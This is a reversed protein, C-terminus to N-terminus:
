WLVHSASGNIMAMSQVLPSWTTSALNPRMAFASEELARLAAEHIRAMDEDTLPKYRGVQCHGGQDPAYRRFHRQVHPPVLPAAVLDARRALLKAWLLM